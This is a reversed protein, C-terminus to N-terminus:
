CCRQGVEDAQAELQRGVLVRGVEEQVDDGAADGAMGVWVELNLHSATDLSEEALHRAAKGVWLDLRISRDEGKICLM